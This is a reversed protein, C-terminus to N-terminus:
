LYKFKPENVFMGSRKKFYFYNVIILVGSVIVQVWLTPSGAYAGIAVSACITYLIAVAINAGLFILYKKPAGKEFKALDFRIIIAWAALAIMLLGFIIDVAHMGPFFSYVMGATIYGDSYVKWILGTVLAIGMVGNLVANAFLQFYIIFKYWKMKTVEVGGISVVNVDVPSPAAYTPADVTPYPDSDAASYPAPSTASPPIYASSSSSASAPPVSTASAPIYTSSSPAASPASGPVDIVPDSSVPAEIPVDVPVEFPTPTDVPASASAAFKRAEDSVRTGCNTCFLAEDPLKTGCKTCFM